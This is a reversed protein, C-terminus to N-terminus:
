PSTEATSSTSEWVRTAVDQQENLRQRLAGLGPYEADTFSGHEIFTYVSGIGGQGAATVLGDTLQQSVDDPQAVLDAIVLQLNVYADNRDRCPDDDIPLEGDHYATVADLLQAAPSSPSTAVLGSSVALTQRALAEESENGVAPLTCNLEDDGCGAALSAAAIAGVLVVLRGRKPPSSGDAAM